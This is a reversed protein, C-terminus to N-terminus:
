VTNLRESSVSHTPHFNRLCPVSAFGVTTEQSTGQPTHVAYILLLDLCHHLLGAPPTLSMTQKAFISLGKKVELQLLVLSVPALDLLSLILM